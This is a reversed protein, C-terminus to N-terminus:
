CPQRSAVVCLLIELSTLGGAGDLKKDSWVFLILIEKDFFFFFFVVGVRFLCFVRFIINRELSIM